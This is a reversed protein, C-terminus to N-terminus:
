TREGTYFVWRRSTVFLTGTVIMAALFLVWALTAGYGMEQYTFVNKYIHINYFYTAGGPIGQGRGLIYPIEFYRFIGIVSLVLNYFIVPSIMPVTIKWFSTWANAGDVKAAEYMETPVGQMAALTTLMANGTGWLGILVLAPYIWDVSNLWNPGQIGISALFMNLWGSQENLFGLWIFVASVVPVMFPTYFLTTFIRKGWLRPSNLLAAMGLPALVAVPLAILAFHISAGIAAVLQPDNGLQAYNRLGVFQAEDPHVMNFNTFSLVFSAVMPFFTFLFFGIIWPALFVFGWKMQARKMGSTKHRPQAVSARAQSQGVATM